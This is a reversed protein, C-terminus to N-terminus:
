KMPINFVLIDLASGAEKILKTMDGNICIKDFFEDINREVEDEYISNRKIIDAFRKIDM